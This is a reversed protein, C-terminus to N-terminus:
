ADQRFDAIKQKLTHYPTLSYADERSFYNLTFQFEWDNELSDTFITMIERVDRGDVLQNLYQPVFTWFNVALEKRREKTQEPNRYYGIQLEQYLFEIILLDPRISTPLLQTYIDRAVRCMEVLTHRDKQLLYRSLMRRTIDDQLFGDKRIILYANTLKDELDYEDAEAILERHMCEKLFKPNFKRCPSLKVMVELLEEPVDHHVQDITQTTITQIEQAYENLFEESPLCGERYKELLAAMCGPHGGSLAMIHASIDDREHDDINSLYTQAVNHLVNYSFLHLKHPRFPLKCTKIEGLGALCRGALVVRFSSPTSRFFVDNTLSRQLRRIFDLVEVMRRASLTKDLKGFDLLIVVGKKAGRKRADKLHTGITATLKEPREDPSQQGLQFAVFLDKLLDLWTNEGDIALYACCYEKALRQQFEQLLATKGYGAPADLIHYSSSHSSLIIEITDEQNVFPVRRSTFQLEEFREAFNDTLHKEVKDLYDWRQMDNLFSGHNVPQTLVTQLEPQLLAGIMNNFEADVLRNLWGLLKEYQSDNM